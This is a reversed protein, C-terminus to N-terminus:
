PRTSLYDVVADINREGLQMVAATMPAYFREGSQTLYRKLSLRLYEPQQGALRPFDKAGHADGMHCRACHQLFLKEGAAARPGPAAFPPVPRTSYMLAISAKERENLVKMLGQMFEDKRLGSLFAEIQNLVYVPHQGALNPVNPFKSIGAEGHCNACFFAAKGGEAALTEQLARDSDARALLEAATEAAASASGVALGVAALYRVFCSWARSQSFRM